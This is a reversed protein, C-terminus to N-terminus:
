KLDAKARCYFQGLQPQEATPRETGADGCCHRFIGIIYKTHISFVSTSAIQKEKLSIVISFSPDLSNAFMSLMDAHSVHSKSNFNFVDAKKFHVFGETHIGM